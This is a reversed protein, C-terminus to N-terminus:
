QAFYVADVFRYVLDAIEGRRMNDAPYFNDARWTMIVQAPTQAGVPAVLLQHGIVLLVIILLKKM